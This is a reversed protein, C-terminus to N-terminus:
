KVTDRGVGDLWKRAEELVGAIQEGRLTGRSFGPLDGCWGYLEGVRILREALQPPFRHQLCVRHAKLDLKILQKAEDFNAVLYDYITERDEILMEELLRQRRLVAAVGIHQVQIQRRVEAVVHPHPPIERIHLRELLLRIRDKLSM